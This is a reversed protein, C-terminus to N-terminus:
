KGELDFRRASLADEIHTAFIWGKRWYPYAEELSAFIGKDDGTPSDGYILFEGKPLLNCISVM